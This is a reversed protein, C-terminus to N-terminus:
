SKALAVTYCRTPHATSMGVQGAYTIKYKEGSVAALITSFTESAILSQPASKALIQDLIEDTNEGEMKMHLAIQIPDKSAKLELAAEVTEFINEHLTLNNESLSKVACLLAPVLPKDPPSIAQHKGDIIRYQAYGGVAWDTAHTATYSSAKPDNLILMQLPAVSLSQGQLVASGMASLGSVRYLYKDPWNPSFTVERVSSALKLCNEFREEWNEGFPLVSERKFIDKRCPLVVHLEAGQELLAEAFIIDGGAALAGYGFGVDEQQLADSISIRLAEEESSTMNLRIHGAFHMPRPPKFDSLWDTAEGRKDCIMIFQKLTTAHAAYNLPDFDIADRLAGAAKDNEGRLLFCEARTAQTFYHDAPTAESSVPLLAEIAEIRAYVHDTPMNAMLAMTASNIGSYYGRTNQFATEYKQAASLAHERAEEGSSRLYLDKSLRGNLAMIDEHDQVAALGFRDYESIAFDLAGARALSLIIQHQLEVDSPRSKLAEIGAEYIQIYDHQHIRTMLHPMFGLTAFLFASDIECSM